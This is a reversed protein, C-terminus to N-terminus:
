GMWRRTGEYGKEVRLVGGLFLLNFSFFCFATKYTTTHCVSGCLKAKLGYIKVKLYENCHFMPRAWHRQSRSYQMRHGRSRRRSIRNNGQTISIRCNKKIQLVPEKVHELLDYILHINPDFWLELEQVQTPAPNALTGVGRMKVELTLKGPNGLWRVVCCPATGSKKCHHGGSRTVRVLLGLERANGLCPTSGVRGSVRWTSCSAWPLILEWARM